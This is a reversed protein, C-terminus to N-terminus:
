KTAPDPQLTLSVSDLWFEGTIDMPYTRGRPRWVSIMAVNEKPGATFDLTVEHWPTTGTTGETATDLCSRCEPDTVRLRPGSDSTIGSSRAYARLRYRRNASVPVIEAIPEFESNDATTYQIELCRQDDHAPVASFNVHIYPQPLPQWDFGTKLPEQEFGGNFVLEKEDPASVIGIEKAQKWARVADIYLGRLLLDETFAAAEPPTIPGRSTVLEDWEKLAAASHGQAATFHIFPMRLAALGPHTNLLKWMGSSDGFARLYLRFARSPDPYEVGQDLELFRGLAAVADAESGTVTLYNALEWTAQPSMPAVRVATHLADTSCHEEGVAICAWGLASWYGARGPSLQVARRLHSVGREPELAVWVYLQGLRYHFAANEGDFRIARELGAVDLSEGWYGAVGVWAAMGALALAVAATAAMFTVRSALSNLNHSIVAPM